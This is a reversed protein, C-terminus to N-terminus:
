QRSANELAYDALEKKSLRNRQIKISHITGTFGGLKSIEWPDIQPEPDAGLVIGGKKPIKNNIKCYLTETQVLKGNVFLQVEATYNDMKALLHTKKGLCPVEGDLIHIRQQGSSFCFGPIGNEVFFMYGNQFFDCSLIVGNSQPTVTCEYLMCGFHPNMDKNIPLVKAATGTCALGNSGWNKEMLVGLPYGALDEPHPRPVVAQYEAEAMVDALKKQMKKLLPAYEPLQALNHMEGPDNTLDYLENISDGDPYHVYLKDMTRVATIRPIAPILDRWYTYLFATRWDKVQKGAALPLLSRGQMAPPVKIGALDLFTPAVDINLAIEEVTSGPRIGPGRMILPIRMSENYALRKDGMGHEGHMYGNDGAFAIVTNELMGNKELTQFIRGIGEDVASICRMYNRQNHTGNKPYPGPNRKPPVPMPHKRRLRAGLGHPLNMRRQWEPKDDLDDDWSLPKPSSVNDYLHKHREPPTFPGHVAKHSLYLLFPGNHHNSEIFEIAYDTLVDTVYGEKVIRTGNINLLNRTYNGQGKFSCWYDWGPRPDDFEGMHWKGIYGTHYGAKQLYQGFTPTKEHNIERGEQNTTVGHKHSYMGTLFGARSPACLSHTTFANAFHVGEKRIRDINPTKLWPYHGVFGMADYRQDDTLIFIINPRSDVSQAPLAVTLTLWASILWRKM